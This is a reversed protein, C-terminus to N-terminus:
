PQAHEIIALSSGPGILCRNNKKLDDTCHLLLRPAVMTLLSGHEKLFNRLPMDYLSICYIM